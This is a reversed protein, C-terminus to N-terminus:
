IKLFVNGLQLYEVDNLVAKGYADGFQMFHSIFIDEFFEVKPDDIDYFPIKNLITFPMNYSVSSGGESVSMIMASQQTHTSSTSYQKDIYIRSTFGQYKQSLDSNSVSGSFHICSVGGDEYRRFIVIYPSFNSATASPTSEFVIIVTNDSTYAYTNQYTTSKIPMSSNNYDSSTNGPRSYYSVNRYRSSGSGTAANIKFALDDGLKFEGADSAVTCSDYIKPVLISELDTLFDSTDINSILKKEYTM